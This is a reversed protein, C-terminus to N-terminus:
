SVKAPEQKAQAAQQAAAQAQQAQAQQQEKRMRDQEAEMRAAEARAVAAAEDTKTPPVAPSYPEEPYVRRPTRDSADDAEAEAQWEKTAAVARELKAVREYLAAGGVPVDIEPAPTALKGELVTLRDKISADVAAVEQSPGAKELTGVRAMLEATQKVLAAQETASAELKQVREMADNSHDLTATKELKELRAALDAVARQVVEIPVHALDYFSRAGSVTNSLEELPQM